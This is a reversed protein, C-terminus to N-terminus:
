KIKISWEDDWPYRITLIEGGRKLSEEAYIGPITMALGERLSIPAPMGDRVARFFKDEIAYDIGGHGIADPNDAYAPPMFEGGIEELMPNAKESNYRIVPKGLRDIREMYGETGFVRYNHHGINARCRGNRMLRVIVGAETQFQACSMDDKKSGESYEEPPAHHGTGLCSVTRLDEELVTLLPGLSHTCYRIPSLLKRWDGNENLGISRERDKASNSWHIYEAELCYPKGLKGSQYFENLLVAFKQENPNAGVSIIASSEKAAKWLKDAEDLNAVVPIDTLVNINKQLAKICFDAHVDAGTEVIVADLDAKELMEDYSEYFATNPFIESFPADELWRKEYWNRPLIDCAAACEVFDFKEALKFMARGRHGLGVVGIKIKKM